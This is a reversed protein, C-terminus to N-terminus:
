EQQFDIPCVIAVDNQFPHQERVDTRCRSVLKEDKLLVSPAGDCQALSVVASSSCSDSSKM